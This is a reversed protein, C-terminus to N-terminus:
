QWSKKQLSVEHTTRQKEATKRGDQRKGNGREGVRTKAMMTTLGIGAARCRFTNAAALELGTTSDLRRAAELRVATGLGAARGVGADLIAMLMGVLVLTRLAATSLRGVLRHKM